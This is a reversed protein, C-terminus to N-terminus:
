PANEGELSGHRGKISPHKAKGVKPNLWVGNEIIGQVRTWPAEIMSKLWGQQMAAQQVALSIMLFITILCLMEITMQGANSKLSNM